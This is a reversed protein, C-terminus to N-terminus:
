FCPHVWGKSKSDDFYSLGPNKPPLLTHHSLYGLNGRKLKPTGLTKFLCYGRWQGLRYFKQDSLHVSVGAFLINEPGVVCRSEASHMKIFIRECALAFFFVFLSSTKFEASNNTTKLHCWSLSSHLPLFYFGTLFANLLVQVFTECVSFSM